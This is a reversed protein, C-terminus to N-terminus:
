PQHNIPIPATTPDIRSQSVCPPVRRQRRRTPSRRRRRISDSGAQAMEFCWACASSCRARRPSPAASRGSRRWRRRKPAPAASPSWRRRASTSAISSTSSRWACSSTPRGPRPAGVADAQRVVSRDHAPRSRDPRQPRRQGAHRDGAARVGDSRVLPESRRDGCRGARPGPAYSPRDPGTGPGLSPAWLSRSRNTQVFVTLPNGSRMRVISAVQWDNLLAGAVGGRELRTPIQWIASLVWNHEAHFDSLGKNYDPIVEPM